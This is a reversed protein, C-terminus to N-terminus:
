EDQTKRLQRGSVGLHRQLLYKIVSSLLHLPSLSTMMESESFGGFLFNAQPSYFAKWASTNSGSVHLGVLMVSCQALKLDM